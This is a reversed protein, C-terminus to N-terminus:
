YFKGFFWRTKFEFSHLASVLRHSRTLVVFQDILVTDQPLQPKRSVQVPAEEHRGEAHVGERVRQVHM